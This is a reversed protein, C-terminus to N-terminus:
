DSPILELNRWFADSVLWSIRSERGIRPIRFGPGQAQTLEPVTGRIILVVAGFFNLADHM